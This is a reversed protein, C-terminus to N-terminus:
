VPEWIVPVSKYGLLAEYEVDEAILMWIVSNEGEELVNWGSEFFEEVYLEQLSRPLVL